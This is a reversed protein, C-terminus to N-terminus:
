VNDRRSGRNRFLLFLLAAIMVLLAVQFVAFGGHLLAFNGTGAAKEAGTQLAALRTLSAIRPILVFNMVAAILTMAGALGVIARHVNSFFLLLLLVALAVACQLWGWIAFVLRNVEAVQYRLVDRALPAGMKAVVQELAPTQVKMVTDAAFFSTPAVIAVLLLAGCWLGLLFTVLRRTRAAARSSIQDRLSASERPASKGDGSRRRREHRPEGGQATAGSLQEM